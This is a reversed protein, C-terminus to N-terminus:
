SDKGITRQNRWVNDNHLIFPPHDTGVGGDISKMDDSWTVGNNIKAAGGVRNCSYWDDNTYIAGVITEAPLPNMVETGLWMEDVYPSPTPTDDPYGTVVNRFHISGRSLSAGPALTYTYSDLTIPTTLIDHATGIPDNRTTWVVPGGAERRIFINRMGVGPNGRVDDRRISTIQTSLTITLNNRSDISATWSETIGVVVRSSQQNLSYDSDRFYYEASSSGTMVDTTRWGTDPPIVGTEEGAYGGSIINSSLRWKYEKGM